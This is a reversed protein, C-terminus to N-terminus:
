TLELTSIIKDGHTVVGSKHVKIRQNKLGSEIKELVEFDNCSITIALNSNQMRIQEITVIYNHETKKTNIERVVNSFKALLQWFLGNYGSQNKQLIQSIRFKPSIVQKADPFFKRYLVAINKDYYNLQHNLIVLSIISSILLGSVWICGLIGALKFYKKAVDSDSNHAYDGQCLNISNRKYLQIAIWAYSDLNIKTFKEAKSLAPSDNFIIIHSLDTQSKLYVQFLDLDLAGKFNVDNVLYRNAIICVEGVNLAFWDCTIENYEIQLSELKIQLELIIDKKIVVVLYKGGFYHNKDFSFHLNIIPEALNEELAYSIVSRAKNYNLLPAEVTHISILQTSIVVVTRSNHQLSRFEDISRVALDDVIMGNQDLRISLCNEDDFKDVFLYCTYM